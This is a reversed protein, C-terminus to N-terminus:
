FIRFFYNGYNQLSELCNDCTRNMSRELPSNDNSGFHMREKKGNKSAATFLEYIKLLGCFKWFM